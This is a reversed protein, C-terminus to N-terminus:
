FLKGKNVHVHVKYNHPNYNNLGKPIANQLKSKNDQQVNGDKNHPYQWYNRNMCQLNM